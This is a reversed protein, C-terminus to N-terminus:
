NFLSFFSSPNLIKIDQFYNLSLLDADGSVIYDAKGTIACNIFKNDHPDRCIKVTDRDSVIVANEAIFVVWSESVINQTDLSKIVRFYEDLIDGTVIVHIHDKVWLELIKAPIGRWFIGSVIVNTDLVVKM